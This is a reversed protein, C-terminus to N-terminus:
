LRNTSLLEDAGLFVVNFNGKREGKIQHHAEHNRYLLGRRPELPLRPLLAPMPGRYEHMGPHFTNWITAFGITFALVVALVVRASVRLGLAWNWGFMVPLVIAGVQATTKWDFVLEHVDTVPGDISMDPKVSLHHRHHTVCANQVLPVSKIWPAHQTCHMVYKHLVWEVVSASLWMLCGFVAFRVAGSRGDLRSALFSALGAALGFAAAAGLSSRKPEEEAPPSLYRLAARGLVSVLALLLSVRLDGGSRYWSIGFFLAFTLPYGLGGSFFLPRSVASAGAITVDM